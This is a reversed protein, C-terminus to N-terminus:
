GGPGSGGRGAVGDLHDGDGAEPQFDFREFPSGAVVSVAFRAFFPGLRGGLARNPQAL